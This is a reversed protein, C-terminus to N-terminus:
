IEEEKPRGEGKILMSIVNKLLFKVKQMISRINSGVVDDSKERHLIPLNHNTSLAM